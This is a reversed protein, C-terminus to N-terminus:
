YENLFFISQNELYSSSTIYVCQCLCVCVFVGHTLPVMESKVAVKFTHQMGTQNTYNAHVEVNSVFIEYEKLDSTNTKIQVANSGNKYVMGTVPSRVQFM